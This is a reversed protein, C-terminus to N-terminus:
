CIVRMVVRPLREVVGWGLSGDDLAEVLGLRSLEGLLAVGGIEELPAAARRAAIMAAKSTVGEVGGFPRTARVPAVRSGFSSARPDAELGTAGAGEFGVV